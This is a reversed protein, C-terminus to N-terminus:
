LKGEQKLKEVKQKIYSNGGGKSYHDYEEYFRQLKIDDYEKGKEVDSLFYVLFNKCSEINNRDVRKELQNIRGEIAETQEAFLGNLAKKILYYIAGCSAILGAIFALALGLEGLTINEM